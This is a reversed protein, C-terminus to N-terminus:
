ITTSNEGILRSNEAPLPYETASVLLPALLAAGTLLLAFPFSVKM